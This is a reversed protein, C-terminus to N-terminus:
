QCESFESVMWPVLPGGLEVGPFTALSEGVEWSVGVSTRTRFRAVACM